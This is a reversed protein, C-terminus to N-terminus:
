EYRMTMTANATFAPLARMSGTRILRATIPFNYAGASANGLLIQGPNGAASSPPGFYIPSANRLLNITMGSNTPSITLNNSRNFTNNADTFTVRIPATAGAAGGVCRVSVNFSREVLTGNTTSIPVVGFNVSPARNSLSCTPRDVIFEVNNNTLNFTLPTLSGYTWRAGQTPVTVRGSNITATKIFRFTWHNVPFFWFQASFYQSTRPWQMLTNNNYLIQMGVGPLGTNYVRNLNSAAQATSWGTTHYFGGSRCYLSTSSGSMTNQWLIDGVRASPSVRVTSPMAMSLTRASGGNYWRCDAIAPQSWGILVTLLLLPLRWRAM